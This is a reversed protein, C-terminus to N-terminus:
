TRSAGPGFFIRVKTTVSCDFPATSEFGLVRALPAGRDLEKFSIQVFPLACGPCAVLDVRLYVM